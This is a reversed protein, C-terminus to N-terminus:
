SCWLEINSSIYNIVFSNRTHHDRVFITLMTSQKFWLLEKCILYWVNNLGEGNSIKSFTGAEDIKCFPGAGFYVNAIGDPSGQSPDVTSGLRLDLYGKQDGRGLWQSYRKNQKGHQTPSGATDTLIWPRAGHHQLWPPWCNTDRVCVITFWMVVTLNGAIVEVALILVIELCNM